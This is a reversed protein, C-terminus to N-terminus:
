AEKSFGGSHVGWDLGDDKTQCNWAEMMQGKRGRGIGGLRREQGCHHRLVGSERGYQDGSNGARKEEPGLEGSATSGSRSAKRVAGGWMLTEEPSGPYRAGM